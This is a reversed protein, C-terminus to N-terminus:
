HTYLPLRVGFDAGKGSGASRVNISGHQARVLGHISTLTGPETAADHSAAQTFLAFIKELKSGEIGRGTDDCHVLVEDVQTTAELWVHGGPSHAIANDILATFIELVPEHAARLRVFGRPLTLHLQCAASQAQAQCAKVAAGLVAELSCPGEPRHTERAPFGRVEVPHGCRHQLQEIDARLDTRDRMVKVFGTLRGDESRVATTCGSVWVLSGDKRRHWRDDEAYGRQEALELEALHIGLAQDTRTFFDAFSRGVLVDPPYGLLVVASPSLATVIGTPSLFVLGFQREQQAWATLMDVPLPHATASTALHHTM